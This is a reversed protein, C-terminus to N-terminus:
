VTARMIEHRLLALTGAQDFTDQLASHEAKNATQQSDYEVGAMEAFREIARMCTPIRYHPWLDKTRLFQELIPYDFSAGKCWIVDANSCFQKIKEEMEALSVGLDDEPDGEQWRQWRLTDQKNHWHVTNQDVRGTGYDMLNRQTLMELHDMLTITPENLDQTFKVMGVDWIFPVQLRPDPLALTEIDIMVETKAM